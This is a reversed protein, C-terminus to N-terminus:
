QLGGWKNIAARLEKHYEAYNKIPINKVAAEIAQRIAKAGAECGSPHGWLGGGCNIILDNGLIKVLKPILGPHLGGSAVPMVPKIGNWSSRLFNNTEVVEKKTGEMKGVVTGTHLASVGVLRALKAIVLMSIGHKKNRTFAAHGARHGHIIMKLNQDRIYQLGSWGATLIDIMVCKGGHKKVFEARKLMKNAPATINPAYIVNRNQESKIKDVIDLIKIVRDEFKNFKMSSLNEDDKTYDIGASYIKYALKRMENPTLGVKPKYITGALPRIKIKTMKRIDWFGVDPGKFSKVVSKPLEIDLLRINKIGRMGFINGAIGSLMQSVNGYEFLDSPYAIKVIGNENIEFVRAGLKKIRSSMTTLETWTGISSEAAVQEACKSLSIKDPEIYYKCILDDADPEYDPEIYNM